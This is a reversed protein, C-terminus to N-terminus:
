SQWFQHLPPPPSQHLPRNRNRYLNSLHLESLITLKGYHILESIVIAGQLYITSFLNYSMYSLINELVLRPSSLLFQEWPSHLHRWWRWWLLNSMRLYYGDSCCSLKKVGLGSIQVISDTSTQRWRWRLASDVKPRSLRSCQAFHYSPQFRWTGEGCIEGSIVGSSVNCEVSRPARSMRLLVVPLFLTRVYARHKKYINCSPVFDFPDSFPRSPASSLYPASAASWPRQAPM